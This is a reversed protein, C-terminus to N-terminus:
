PEITIAQTPCLRAAAEVKERLELDPNENLVLLLGESTVQFVEPAAVMCNANGQCADFDVIVRM